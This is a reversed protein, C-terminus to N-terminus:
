RSEEAALAADHMADVETGTYEAGCKLSDRVLGLANKRLEDATPSAPAGFYKWGCGKLARAAKAFDFGAMVQKLARDVDIRSLDLYEEATLERLAQKTDKM